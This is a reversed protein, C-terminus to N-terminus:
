QEVVEKSESVAVPRRRENQRIFEPVTGWIGPRLALRRRGPALLIPVEPRRIM